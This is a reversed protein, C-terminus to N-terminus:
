PVIPPSRRGGPSTSVIPRAHLERHLSAVDDMVIYIRAGPSCDGYHETLHLTLPGRTVSMYRPGQGDFQHEWDLTFGLWDLYFKKALAHDFVRLIPIPPDFKM